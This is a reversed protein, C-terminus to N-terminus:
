SNFLFNKGVILRFDQEISKLNQLFDIREIMEKRSEEFVKENKLRTVKVGSSNFDKDKVYCGIMKSLEKTAIHDIIMDLYDENVPYFKETEMSGVYYRGKVKAISDLQLQALNYERLWIRRIQKSLLNDIERDKKKSKFLKM